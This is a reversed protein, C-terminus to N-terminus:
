TPRDNRTCTRRGLAETLSAPDYRGVYVV